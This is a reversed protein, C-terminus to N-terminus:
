QAPASEAVQAPEQEDAALADADGGGGLSAVASMGLRINADPTFDIYALYTADSGDTSESVHSIMAVTGPYVTANGEDYSFTLTVSDGERIATLDYEDVEIKVQMASRPYVTLVTDGKNLAAGVTANVSVVIGEVGSVITNGSAYLGDLTGTVTEFLLQGRTVADGDQVHLAVISGTGGVAVEPTRSVTGRGIRSTSTHAADRYIVVTEEMLLEGETTVVTYQVGDAATIIGTAEHGNSSYYSELYVTEGISVYKNDSNNYAKQIDATITYKGTPAVYLVAGSRAAVDEANDGPQGFVGSVTGDTSAYVKTTEVSAIEQGLTIEQGARVGLTSVTGGFPALVAIQEGNSVVGDFTTEAVAATLTGLTLLLAALISAIRKM